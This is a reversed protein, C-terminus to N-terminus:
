LNTEKVMPIWNFADGDYVYLTTNGSKSEDTDVIVVARKGSTVGAIAAAKTEFGLPLYMKDGQARTVLGAQAAAVLLEAPGM